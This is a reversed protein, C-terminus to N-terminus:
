WNAAIWCAAFKWDEDVTRTSVELIEAVEHIKFDGLVRLEVVKSVREDIKGLQQLLQQLHIFEVLGPRGRSAVRLEDASRLRTRYRRGSDILVTQMERIAFALLENEDGGAAEKRLLRCVAENALATPVLTHHGRERSLLRCAIRRLEPYLIALQERPAAPFVEASCASTMRKGLTVLFRDSQLMATCVGHSLFTKNPRLKILRAPSTISAPEVANLPVM